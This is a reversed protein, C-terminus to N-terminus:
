DLEARTAVMVWGEWSSRREELNARSADIRNLRPLDDKENCALCCSKANIKRPNTSTAKEGEFYQNRGDNREVNGQRIWIILSIIINNSIIM